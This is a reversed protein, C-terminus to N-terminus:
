EKGGKFATIPRAQLLFLTSGEYAWEIDVPYGLESKVQRTLEAVEKIESDSLIAKVSAHHAQVNKDMVVYTDPTIEGGVLAEGLGKVAEIVPTENYTVPHDSFAVGSLRADVMAQVIVAVGGTTGHQLSYSTARESKASMRCKKIAELVDSRSINLFTELQGAWSASEGDENTASSRVAVKSVGLKDFHELISEDSNGDHTDIVFGEPIKFHSSLLMLKQAKGGVSKKSKESLLYIM